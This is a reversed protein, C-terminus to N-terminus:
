NSTILRSLINLTQPPHHTRQLHLLAQRQREELTTSALGVRLRCKTQQVGGDERQRSSVLGAYGVNGYQDGVSVGVDLCYSAM